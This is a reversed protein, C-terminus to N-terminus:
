AFAVTTRVKARRRMAGGVMGFGMIMLAWTTPEPVGAFVTFQLGTSDNFFNGGNGIGYGIAQSANLTVLQFDSFTSTTNFGIQGFNFPPAGNSEVGLRFVDIGTPSSDQSNFTAFLRYVGATPAVFLAAVLDTNNGPHLLLRDQPVTVTSYQNVPNGGAYVGPLSDNGGATSAQLCVSQAIVCNSNVTFFTGTNPTSENVTGYIFNGNNIGNEAGPGDQIPNGQFGNFADYTQAAAPAAVVIAGLAATAFLMKM